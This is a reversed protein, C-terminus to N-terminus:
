AALDQNGRLSKPATFELIIPRAVLRDVVAQALQATRFIQDWQSFVLNSTVMLSKRASHRESIFNFLVDTDDRTQTLYGLEDLIIVEYRGLRALEAEMANCARAALLRGILKFTPIFLVRMQHREILSRGLAACFGTKGRGHLGLAILNDGRSVWDGSQLTPLMRRAKDPMKAQDFREFTESEPLESDHLLRRVRRSRKDAAELDALHQLFKRYGWNEQEARHIADGFEREMAPLHLQRLLLGLSDDASM